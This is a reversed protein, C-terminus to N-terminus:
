CVILSTNCLTATNCIPCVTKTPTVTGTWTLVVTSALLLALSTDAVDEFDTPDSSQNMLNQWYTQWQASEVPSGVATVRFWVSFGDPGQDDIGVSSILMARNTLGYDSLNVTLMQGPALGKTRTSFTLVTTDQGYHSLLAGAIQFAAALTHVKTNSYTSEVLGSGGGERAKQAAILAPNQASALVPYRGNYDVVLTDGSGLPALAPDQAVVADGIAWYFAQGNDVGKTGLAQAVGNLLVMVKSSLEYRCTFSRTVGNGNFTDQQGTQEAYAGKAYQHNVYMDNGFEVSVEQLADVTSGDVAFPAPIGGYPQFFLVGNEDINWWYGAQTALWTLADSVSKTGNWVVETIVPGSAISGPSSTVGEASLYTGLLDNVIAGATVGLYTKFVRRKDAKYCNDMLQIDHELYGTGQQAGSKTVKDKSTFGSYALAGTEDFIQVQTGYQYVTGLASWIKIGGTSRQGIQKVANLTGGIINVLSGGIKATYNTSTM